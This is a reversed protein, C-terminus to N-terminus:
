SHPVTPQAAQSPSVIRRLYVCGEVDPVFISAADELTFSQLKLFARGWLVPCTLAANVVRLKSTMTVPHQAANHNRLTGSEFRHETVPCASHADEHNAETYYRSSYWWWKGRCGYICYVTLDDGDQRRIQVSIVKRQLSSLYGQFWGIPHTKIRGIIVTDSHFTLLAIAELQHESRPCHGKFPCLGM